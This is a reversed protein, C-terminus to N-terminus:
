IPACVGGEKPNINECAQSYGPDPVAQWVCDMWAAAEAENELAISDDSAPTVFPDYGATGTQQLANSCEDVCDKIIDAPTQGPSVIGCEDEAYVHRCTTQCNEGCGSLWLLGGMSGTVIWWRM